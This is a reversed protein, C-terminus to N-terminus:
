RTERVLQCLRSSRPRETLSAIANAIVGPNGAYVISLHRQARTLATYILPRNLMSGAESPLVVVVAPWESGQSRHITVAWGHKLDILDKAPVRCPGQGFDVRLANRGDLETVSGVEGNAFGDDLHNSTAVVRDGVDYGFVAGPGPNLAIKLAENLSSTGAKGRHIPTLVQIDNPSISLSRPISDTVLQVVRHACEESNITAVVVVEKDENTVTPFEGRRVATALRAIAGGHEHRHLTLLETVPFAGSDILDKLFQGPGISPLQAPDGVLLLHAGDPIASVLAAALEVDIMSAEDVVLVQVDLPWSDGRAFTGTTGQAGLLRHLTVAELDTLEELRKAARGTPAALAIALDLQQCLDVIARVTRSKGTGPGGTLISVGHLAIQSIAAVQERDLGDAVSGIAEAQCLKSAARELRTLGLAINEEASAYAELALFDEFDIVLGEGVVDAVAREVEPFQNRELAQAVTTRPLATSGAVAGRRLAWQVLARGRRPDNPSIEDLQFQAFRDAAAVDLAGCALLSWPDETIVRFASSGFFHIAIAAAKPECGAIILQEAVLYIHQAEQFALVLREARKRSNGPIGLLNTVTVDDPSNIRANLLVQAASKGLGPWLGALAFAAFVNLQSADELDHSM